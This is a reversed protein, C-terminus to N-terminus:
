AKEGCLYRILTSFSASEGGLLLRYCPIVRVVAALRQFDASGAGPLQFLTSPALERLALARDMPQLSSDPGDCFSPILLAKLPAKLFMRSRGEPNLVAALKGKEDAWANEFSFYRNLGPHRLLDKPFLKASAYLAYVEPHAPDRPDVLSYDDGAFGLGQSLCAIATNSKGSGGRGGILVAGQSTGVCAAHTVQKLRGRLAWYLLVRLPAAKDHPPIACPDTVGFLGVANKKDFCSVSAFSHSVFVAAATEEAELFFGEEAQPTMGRPKLEGSWGDGLSESGALFFTVDGSGRASVQLHELAPLLMEQFRVDRYVIRVCIGAIQYYRQFCDGLGKQLGTDFSQRIRLLIERARDLRELHEPLPEPGAPMM